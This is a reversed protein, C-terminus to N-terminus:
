TYFNVLIAGFQFMLGLSQNFNDKLVNLEYIKDNFDM